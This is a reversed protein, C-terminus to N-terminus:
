KIAAKTQKFLELCKSALSKNYYMQQNYESGAIYSKLSELRDPCNISYDSLLDRFEFHKISLELNELDEITLVILPHVTLKSKILEGSDKKQDPQFLREFESALFQGYVPATLFTDYVLLVPYVTDVQSFEKNKTKFKDCSINNLIRALQGVGKVRQNDQSNREIVGYKERLHELYKQYDENLIKDERIWVAKIEFLILDRDKSICADIELEKGDLDEKKLNRLVQKNGDNDPFMRNLIDCTYNEFAKGFAGFIVNAQSRTKNKTLIFLPGISAKENYFIPDLIIARDDKSCLIPKERLPLYDYPLEIDETKDANGWVVNRLEDVSQSEYAIYKQFIDKLPTSDAFSRPNFIGTNNSKPNAFHVTIILLCKFYDEISLGVTSQFESDLSNYQDRFYDMFITWGRGFSRTLEPCLETGEIAKRIAGLARKRATDIEGNLSFRDGYVRKSWFNSAILAAQVFKKRTNPDEFTKGDNPHNRCYLLIWRLLELLQGRFFVTIKNADGYALAFRNVEKIEENTLFLDIAAQQRSIHEKELPNTVILNLRACWFLADTLSIDNLLTKFTDFDNHVNPFIESVPIFVGTRNFNM